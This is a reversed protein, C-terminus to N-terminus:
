ALSRGQWGSLSPDLAFKRPVSGVSMLLEDPLSWDRAKVFQKSFGFLAALRRAMDWTKDAWIPNGMQVTLICMGTAWLDCKFIDVKVRGSPPSPPMLMGLWRTGKALLMEPPRNALPYWCTTTMIEPGRGSVDIARGFDALKVTLCPQTKVLINGAHVDRHALGKEHLHALGKLIHQAIIRSDDASSVKWRSGYLTNHLPSAQVHAHLTADMLELVQVSAKPSLFADLLVVINPGQAKVAHSLETNEESSLRTCIKIAVPGRHWSEGKYVVGSCGKGLSGVIKCEKFISSDKFMALSPLDCAEPFLQKPWPVKHGDPWLREADKAPKLASLEHDDHMKTEHNKHRAPSPTALSPQAESPTAPSPSAPSPRAQGVAQVAPGDQPLLEPHIGPKMSKKLEEGAATKKDDGHKTQSSRGQGAAATEADGQCIRSPMMEQGAATTEAKDQNSRSSRQQGAAVDKANKADISLQRAWKLVSAWTSSEVAIMNQLLRVGLTTSALRASQGFNNIAVPRKHKINALGYNGHDAM